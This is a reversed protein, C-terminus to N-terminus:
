VPCTSIITPDLYTPCQCLLTESLFWLTTWVTGAARASGCDGLCFLSQSSEAWPPPQSMIILYSCQRREWVRNCSRFCVMRNIKQLARGLFHFPCVSVPLPHSSSTSQARPISYAGTSACLSGFIPHEAVKGVQLGFPLGLTVDVM